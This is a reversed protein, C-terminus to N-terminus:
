AQEHEGTTQSRIDNLLEERTPNQKITGDWRQIKFNMFIREDLDAKRLMTSWSPEFANNSCWVGLGKALWMALDRWTPRPDPIGCMYKWTSVHNSGSGIGIVPFELSPDYAMVFAGAATTDTGNWVLMEKDIHTRCAPSEAALDVTKYEM